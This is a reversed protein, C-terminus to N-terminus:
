RSVRQLELIVGRDFAPSNLAGGVSWARDDALAYVSHLDADTPGDLVSWGEQERTAILGRGGVTIATGDPLVFVGNLGPVFEPSREVFAGEERVLVVGNGAGGVAYPGHEPTGHVTLLRDDIPVDMVSWAAGDFHMVAGREGVIWVDDAATGWVKFMVAGDITAPPVAADLEWGAGVPRRLVVGRDATVRIDGGVAWAEGSPAVWVGFLTKTTPPSVPQFDRTRRPHRLMLGNEGVLLLDDAGDEAVWWLDGTTGTHLREVPGGDLQQLVTSGEADDAGVAVVEGEDAYVSLLAASPNEYTVSWEAPGPTDGCAGLGVVLAWGALTERRM